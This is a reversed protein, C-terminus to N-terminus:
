SGEPADMVWVIDSVRVEMGREASFPTGSDKVALRLWGEGTEEAQEFRVIEGTRLRLAYDFPDLLSKALAHGYLRQRSTDYDEIYDM